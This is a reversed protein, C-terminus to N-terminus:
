EGFRVQPLSEATDAVRQSAKVKIELYESADQNREQLHQEMRWAALSEALDPIIKELDSQNPSTAYIQEQSGTNKGIARHVLYYKAEKNKIRFMDIVGPGNCNCKDPSLQRLNYLGISYNTM